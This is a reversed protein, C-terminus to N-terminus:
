KKLNSFCKWNVNYGMSEAKRLDSLAKDYDGHEYYALGRGYYGAANEPYLSIAKDYSEVKQTFVFDGADDDTGLYDIYNVMSRRPSEMKFDALASAFDGKECYAKGRFLYREPNDEAKKGYSHGYVAGDDDQIAKNFDDIAKDYDGTRYYVIGRDFEDGYFDSRRYDALANQYDGRRCYAKARLSYGYASPKLSIAKNLLELAEDSKGDSLLKRATETYSYASYDCILLKAVLALILLLAAAIAIKSSGSLGTKKLSVAQRSGGSSNSEEPEPQQPSKQLSKAHRKVAARLNMLCIVVIVALVGWGGALLIMLAAGIIPGVVQIIPM